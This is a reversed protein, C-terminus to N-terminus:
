QLVTCALTQTLTQQCMSHLLGVRPQSVPRFHSSPNAIAKIVVATTQLQMMNQWQCLIACSHQPQDRVYTRQARHHYLNVQLHIMVRALSLTQQQQQLHLVWAAM